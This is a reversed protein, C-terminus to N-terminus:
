NKFNMIKFKNLILVGVWGNSKIWLKVINILKILIEVVKKDNLRLM